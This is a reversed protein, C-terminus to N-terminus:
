MGTKSMSSSGMGAEGTGQYMEISSCRPSARGIASLVGFRIPALHDCSPLGRLQGAGILRPVPQHLLRPTADCSCKRHRALPHRVSWAVLSRKALSATPWDAVHQGAARSPHMRAFPNAAVARYRRGALGDQEALATRHGRRASPCACVMGPGHHSLCRRDQAMRDVPLPSPPARPSLPPM